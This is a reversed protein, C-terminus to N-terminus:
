RKEYKWNRGKGEAIWEIATKVRRQRTDEGKAESIWQSYERKHSPPFKEFAASAKKNTALAKKLEPPVSVPKKPRAQKPAKVGQENLKAAQKFWGTLVKDSPLDTVKTLDRLPGGPANGKEGIILPAKWLIVNCHQKFAAMGCLVGKYDFHPAGWKITEQVEPVAAHVLDRVHKLIPKAFDAAKAIYADVRPDRKGM